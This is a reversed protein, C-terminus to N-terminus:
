VGITILTKVAWYYCRIYSNGEGDYVWKTSRLGEYDSAWYYLCANMHLCYLLYATTRIVRYIYAKSLIAELRNNFEFFAMYKLLRPLRLISRVGFKFYLLDLPLLSIVDMKFRESKVYNQRMDKKM